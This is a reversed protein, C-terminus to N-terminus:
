GGRAREEAAAAGEGDGAAYRSVAIIAWNDQKITADSAWHNSRAALNGAQAFQRQELRVHALRNWLYSEEPAIRIARELSSAAGAHNGLAKQQEAQRVLAAVAPQLDPTTVNVAVLRTPPPEPKPAPTQASPYEIRPPAVPGEREPEPAPEDLLDEETLELAPAPATPPQYAFTKVKPEPPPAPTPASTPSTTPQRVIVPAPDTRPLESACGAALATAVFAVLLRLRGALHLQGACRLM